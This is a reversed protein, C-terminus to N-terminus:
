REQPQLKEITGFLHGGVEGHKWTGAYKQDHIVVRADFTGLGPITVKDLTIIPTEGAWKVELPLPLTVDHEGYRIRAQFLWLDGTPMKTVSRIEYTEERLKDLPQGTITFHGTLKVGSLMNQFKEFRPDQPTEPKPEQASLPAGLLILVFTSAKLWQNWSRPCM